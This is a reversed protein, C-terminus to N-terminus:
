GNQSRRCAHRWHYDQGNEGAISTEVSFVEGLASISAVTAALMLMPDIASCAAAMSMGSRGM